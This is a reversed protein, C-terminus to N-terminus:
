LIGFYKKKRLELPKRDSREDGADSTGSEDAISYVHRVIALCNSKMRVLGLERGGVRRLM